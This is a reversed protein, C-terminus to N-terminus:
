NYLSAYIARCAVVTGAFAIGILVNNGYEDSKSMILKVYAEFKKGESHTKIKKTM